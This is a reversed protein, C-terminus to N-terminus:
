EGDEEETVEFEGNENDFEEDFDFEPEANLVEDYLERARELDSEDVYIDEAVFGGGFLVKMTGQEESDCTFLIGNEKLIDRYIEANVVDDVSVALVPNELVIEEDQESEENDMLEAGCVPCLEAFDDCEAKCVHCIKM